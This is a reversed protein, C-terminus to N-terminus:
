LIIYDTIPNECDQKWNRQTDSTVFEIGGNRFYVLNKGSKIEEPMENGFHPIKVGKGKYLSAYTWSSSRCKFPLDSEPNYDTLIDISENNDAEYQSIDNVGIIINRDVQEFWDIEPEKHEEPEELKALKEKLEKNEKELALYNEIVFDVGDQFSM